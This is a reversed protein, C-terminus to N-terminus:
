KQGKHPPVSRVILWLLGATVTISGVLIAIAFSQIVDADPNSQFEWLVLPLTYYFVGVFAAMFSRKQISGTKRLLLIYTVIFLALPSLFYSAWAFEIPTTIILFLQNAIFLTVFIIKAAADIKGTTYRSLVIVLLTLALAVLPIGEFFAKDWIFDVDSLLRQLILRLSDLGAFLTMSLLAYFSGAAIKNISSKDKTLLFGAIFGGGLLVAFRLYYIGDLLDHIFRQNTLTNYISAVCGLIVLALGAVALLKTFSAYNQKKIM